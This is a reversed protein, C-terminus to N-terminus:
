QITIDYERRQTELVGTKEFKKIIETIAVPIFDNADVGVDYRRFDDNINQINYDEKNHQHGHLHYAGRFFHNWEEFPYHCLIFKRGEYTIEHYDGLLEFNKDHFNKIWKDHNGTLFRIKGNLKSIFNKADEVNKGMIFDGLVYVDDNKKVISNWNNIMTKNMEEVSRFPRDCLTIINAHNFHLDSTFYIM